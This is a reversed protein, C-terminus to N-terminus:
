GSAPPTPNPNASNVTRWIFQQMRDYHSGSWYVRQCVPCQFFQNFYLRTKPPLQPWVAEKAVAIIQGNCALCRTFPRCAATLNFYRVVETVQEEPHQSRLWYGRRIANHKLLGIDRTLVIRNEAAITAITKDAYNNEYRSDFGLLRLARALKGLHVDLVFQAPGPSNAHRSYGAPWPREPLAPYVEVEDAAHLRASFNVPLGNILMVDIEPHPVGLAEVADKVAPKGTFTYTLRTNRRNVPLFDNLSDHFYFCATKKM